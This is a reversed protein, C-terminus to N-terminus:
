LIILFLRLIGNLFLGHFNVTNLFIFFFLRFAGKEKIPIKHNLVIKMLKYMFYSIAAAPIAEFDLYGFILTRYIIYSIMM